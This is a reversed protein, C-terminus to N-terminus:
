KTQLMQYCLLKIIYCVPILYSLKFLCKYDFTSLTDVNILTDKDLCLATLVQEFLLYFYLILVTFMLRVALKHLLTSQLCM